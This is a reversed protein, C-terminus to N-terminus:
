TGCQIKKTLGKPGRGSLFLCTQGGLSFLWGHSRSKSRTAPSSTKWNPTSNPYPYRAVAPPHHMSNAAVSYISSLSAASAASAAASTWCYTPAPFPSAPPV